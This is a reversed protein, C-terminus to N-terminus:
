TSRGADLALASKLLRGEAKEALNSLRGMQDPPVEGDNLHLVKLCIFGALGPLNQHASALNKVFPHNVNLLVHHREKWLSFLSSVPKDDVRTLTGPSMQTVFMRDWICSGPYDFDAAAIAKYKAGTCGDMAALTKLFSRMRADLRTEPLLEPMMFTKSAEVVRVGRELWSGGLENVWPGAVLVPWGRAALAASVKNCAKDLLLVRESRGLGDGIESLSVTKGDISPFLPWDSRKWKAMMSSFLWRLFPLRALWGAELSPDVSRGEASRRAIEKSLGGLEDKLKLPLEEEVLRTVIAMAKCYNDDELVNDRTLTHELYRSKIKLAVGPFYAHRGEKLTLGKNYFGCFPKAEGTFGLVIETGEESYRLSEGEPLGFAENVLVPEGGGRRDHFYIRTDSHRCWFRITKLSEAALSVYEKAPMAKFLEVLTGERMEAVRYKDYRKYSPFDLRWSEGSKATHVRVMEPRLSFVSVVGIGFKGIKTLDDEKTSRFLVLFYDDIIREDMGEGDDEVALRATSAGEDYELTVDIRNSGADIANQILERYFALPDSFQDVLDKVLGPVSSTPTRKTM